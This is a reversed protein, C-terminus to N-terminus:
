LTLANLRDTIESIESESLEIESVSLRGNHTVFSKVMNIAERYEHYKLATRKIARIESQRVSTGKIIFPTNKFFIDWSKRSGFLDPDQLQVGEVIVSKEPYLEESYKKTAALVKDFARIRESGRLKYNFEPVEKKLFSDFNQNINAFFDEDADRRDMYNDLEIVESGTRKAIDKALQSKGSGSVGAIYLANHKRDTRFLEVNYQKDHKEIYSSIKSNKTKADLPSYRQFTFRGTKPDHNHNYHYLEM